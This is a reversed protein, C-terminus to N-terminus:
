FEDWDAAVAANGHSAFSASAAALRQQLNRAGARPAPEPAVASRVPTEGRAIRFVEVIRDLESAQAETQEIAANTEEVLAANHQTMEDMTRVATSVEEIASAQERSDNAISELLNNNDRVGDLMAELKGAADGVLKSGSKVEGASQEILAKVDSSASAASQALRRVEVAVVAFGKGADGARAAEVSANLALLNTQFAIDDIMGIINSIKASSQTIREMASTAQDMVQGGEEATRTVRIAGASADKARQANRLVTAALQEMAASTEEITAAQKTTRESLDNAGSLIEGTATKLSGSTHRLQGVVETLKDAVANIDSKLTAFAGQYDGEMRETLDTNAMAGLVQGMETVGRNFTSVLENIGRALGNLEPDPFEATVQRSFDGAVAADVVAGFASQLESMMQQRSEQEAVIRAAEAETMQSVRLGNQRFVEVARAMGGVENGLGTYPVDTAYNGEAIAEMSGALKPIPRTIIRSLLLGILGLVVVVGGGVMLILGLVGNAAAEINVMPTGVFIAGMVEGSMKEIPQLAVFYSIGNVLMAGSYPLGEMLTAYIPDAPDIVLDTVRTGDAAEISTTKGHMVKTTADVVYITADQRTVRTVSDIIETDYFPPVAWSQFADMTGEPTWNLVSGSIRRELITAAVALNTDQQLKSDEMSGAHLNIYIAGSVAAISGIISVLVLAAIATTM